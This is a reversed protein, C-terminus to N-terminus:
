NFQGFSKTLFPLLSTFGILRVALSNLAYACVCLKVIECTSKGDM